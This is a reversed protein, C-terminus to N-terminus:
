AGGARHQRVGAPPVRAVGIPTCRVVAIGRMAVSEHEGYRQNDIPLCGSRDLGTSGGVRPAIGRVAFTPQPQQCVVDPGWEPSRAQQLFGLRGAACLCAEEGSYAMLE